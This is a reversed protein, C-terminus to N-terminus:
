CSQEKPPKPMERWHTLSEDRWEGGDWYNIWTGYENSSLYVQRSEPPQESVPHWQRLEYEAIVAQADAEWTERNSQCLQEWKTALM